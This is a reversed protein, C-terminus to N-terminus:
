GVGWARNVRTQGAKIERSDLYVRVSVDGNGSGNAATVAEFVGQRIGELIDNNSAVATRGGITGVMEPGAERAVFLQGESPFGGAAFNMGNWISGDDMSQQASKDTNKIFGLLGIGDLVDQIWSHAAKCWGILKEIWGIFTIISDIPWMIVRAVVAAFDKWELKGNGLSDALSKQFERGKEILKDWKGIVFVIAGAVAAVALPIWSCTMLSLAAGIALLGLEITLLTQTSMEGSKIWDYIGATLMIFGGILLGIAIGVKGFALGLGLTLLVVGGLMEAFNEWTIGNVISDVWGYALLFAGALAIALGLVTKLITSMQVLGAIASGIKWAAIALGIAIAIAKVLEMHEKLWSIIDRLKMAWKDLQTDEFMTSPDIAAGGGGGGGQNPENLRNIEDFGLLQNKWEKAAGGGAKMNDAFKKSVDLAKLYTTGTFAAFIQSIANALMIVLSIIQNIVPALAALLGIFAAGLQNKMKLGSSSMSDMASAFRHGESTIGQSFAYANKLGESFAQGVAKLASRIIRYFAIRKLSSILTALPSKSKAAEKSLEKVGGAAKRAANEARELARETQLIQGRLAYAKDANGSAFADQLAAQLSALKAKLVDIENSAEIIRQTDIPVPTVNQKEFEKQAAAAANIERERQRWASDENGNQFADNMKKGADDVKHLAIELKGAEEIRRQLDDPLPSNAQASSASSAANRASQVTKNFTNGTYNNLNIPSGANGIKDMANALSELKKVLSSSLARGLNSVADAVKQIEDAAGSASHKVEIELSELTDAM